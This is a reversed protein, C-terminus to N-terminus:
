QVHALGADRAVSQRDEQVRVGVGGVHRVWVGDQGEPAEGASRVLLLAGERLEGAGVAAREAVVQELRGDGVAAADLGDRKRVCGRGPDAVLAEVAKHRHLVQDLQVQAIVVATPYPLLLLSQM